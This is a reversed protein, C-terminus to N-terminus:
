KLSILKALIIYSSIWIRLSYIMELIQSLFDLLGLYKVCKISDFKLWIILIKFTVLSLDTKSTDYSSFNM